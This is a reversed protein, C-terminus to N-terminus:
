SELKVGKKGALTKKIEEPNMDKEMEKAPDEGAGGAEGGGGMAKAMELLQEMKSLDMVAKKTATGTGHAAVVVTETSKLCGPLALLVGLVSLAALRSAWRSVNM